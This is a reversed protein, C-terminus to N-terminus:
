TAGAARLLLRAKVFRLRPLLKPSLADEGRLVSSIQERYLGARLEVKREWRPGFWAEFFQALELLEELKRTLELTVRM